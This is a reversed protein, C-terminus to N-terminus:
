NLRPAPAARRDDSGARRLDGPAAHLDMQALCLARDQPDAALSAGLARVLAIMPRNEMLVYGSLRRVGSRRANDALQRMLELGLGQRQWDDAIAIAFEASCREKQWVYRADAVIRPRREAGAAPASEAVLAVHHRQDIETLARVLSEPLSRAGSFFRRYRSPPSLADFFRRVAEGDHRNLARVQVRRGDAVEIDAVAPRVPRIPGCGRVPLALGDM